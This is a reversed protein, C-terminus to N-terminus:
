LTSEVLRMVQELHYSPDGLLVENAKIRKLYLHADHEWTFGTGGLIQITKEAVSKGCETCYAKVAQASLMAENEDAHDQAWAAWYMLSRASETEMFMEACLHKVAQFSGIPQDFQVRIKAYEDAIEMARQAAGVTEASIGVYARALAKQMLAWAQGPEGLVSEAGLRLSTFEVAAQRRAGDMTKLPTIKVNDNPLDVVFLTLGQAPDDGPETRACVILADATQADNVFLKTGTLIYGDGDAQAPMQIYGTDGGADAETVALAGKLEGAALKPLYKAKQDANGAKKLLEGFLLVTSVFPGPCVTRGMEELVVALDMLELDLGDYEEPLLMATWGMEAMKQWIADTFKEPEDYVTKTLEAPCENECFRRAQRSIEVQDETLRIDM